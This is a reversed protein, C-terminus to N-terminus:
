GGNDSVVTTTLDIDCADHQGPRCLWSKADGYDNPQQAFGLGAAVVALTIQKWM